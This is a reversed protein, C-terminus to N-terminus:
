YCNSAVQEDAGGPCYILVIYLQRAAPVTVDWQAILLGHEHASPSIIWIYMESSISICDNTCIFTQCIFM